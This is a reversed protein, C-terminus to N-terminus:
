IDFQFDFFDVTELDIDSIEWIFARTGNIIRIEKIDIMQKKVEIDEVNSYYSVGVCHFNDKYFINEKKYFKNIVNWMENKAYVKLDFNDVDSKRKTEVTYDIVRKPELEKMSMRYSRCIRYIKEANQMREEFLVYSIHNGDSIIAFEYQDLEEQYIVEVSEKNLWYSKSYAEVISNGSAKHIFFNIYIFFGACLIVLILYKLLAFIGTHTQVHEIREGEDIPLLEMIESALGVYKTEGGCEIVYTLNKYSEEYRDTKLYCLGLAYAKVVRKYTTEPNKGEELKIIEDWQEQLLYKQLMIRECLNEKKAVDVKELQNLKLSLEKLEKIIKEQKGPSMERECERNYVVSLIQFEIKQLASLREELRKLEAIEQLAEEYSGIILYGNLLDLHHGVNNRSIKKKTLRKCLDLYSVFECYEGTIREMREQFIKTVCVIMIFALIINVVWLESDNVICWISSVLAVVMLFLRLYITIFYLITVKKKKMICM